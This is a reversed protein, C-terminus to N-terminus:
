RGLIGSNQPIEIHIAPDGQAHGLVRSVGKDGRFGAVLRDRRATGPGSGLLWQPATSIDVAQLQTPDQMHKFANPDVARIADIREAMAGLIADRAAGARKERMAVDIVSNGNPDYLSRQSKEGKALLNEYMAGAQGRADRQTSTILVQTIGQAAANARPM